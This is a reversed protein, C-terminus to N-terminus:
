KLDLSLSVLLLELEILLQGKEPEFHSSRNAPLVESILVNSSM